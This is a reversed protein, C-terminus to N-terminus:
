ETHLTITLFYDKRFIKAEVPPKSKTLASNFSAVDNVTQGGVEVFIDGRQIGDKEARSGQRVESVLVGRTSEFAFSKALLPTLEQVTVGYQEEIKNNKGIPIAMKQFLPKSVYIPAEFKLAMVISDSPRADIELLSGNREIVLTAYYINNESHTIIIRHIKGDDRQVIRAMLDHTLPREHKVGQMESLIASAECHGIWILMAREERSDALFVVPQNSTPDVILGHVKVKLLEKQESASLASEAAVSNGCLWIWAALWLGFLALLLVTKRRFM